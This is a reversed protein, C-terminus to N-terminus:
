VVRFAINELKVLREVGMDNVLLEISYIRGKPLGSSKFSIFMGSADTSVKTSNRKKDFPIIVTGTEVDVIRYYCSDVVISKRTRPLKYSNETAEADLDEVFLRISVTSSDRYESQAGVPTIYLRRNSFGSISRNSKKVTISGSYFSTSLDNTSWIEKLEVEGRTKPTEGFFATNFRSLNFTGSYVGTMGQGTSSGTHQSALVTFTTENKTGSGSVFRLTVCNQGTLETLSADSILNAPNGSEFNKLFLSSSLNFQLDLHRDRISNDWTLVLRPRLLSNKSQRSLFRKVFRTKKDSEDSGSFAIRFGKNPIHGVLSASVATTVDLFLDGPGEDFYKSSGFDVVTGDALTGTTVYDGGVPTEEIGSLPCAQGAGSMIWSVNSGNLYSATLFNATDVDSFQSTSRGSGEDFAVALPNCLVNFNRPVPTGSPVEFLQLEARFDNNHINLSSSLLPPIESYDFKILIRSLEEVSSTVRTSGSMFSSEDYLKFLDLTGARGVNADAARFKNSIIKNTIYTDASATIIYFM